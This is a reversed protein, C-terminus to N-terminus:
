KKPDIRPRREAGAWASIEGARRAEGWVSHTIKPHHTLLAGYGIEPRGSVSGRDCSGDRRCTEKGPEAEEQAEVGTAGKTSLLAQWNGSYSWRHRSQLGAAGRGGLQM